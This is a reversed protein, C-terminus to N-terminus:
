WSVSDVAIGHEPVATDFQLGIGQATGATVDAPVELVVTNWGSQLPDGTGKRVSWSRDFLWPTATVVDAGSRASPPLWVHFSVLGGAKVGTLSGRDVVAATGAPVSVVLSPQASGSVAGAAVTSGGWASSWGSTGGAFNFRGTAKSSSHLAPHMMLPPGAPARLKLDAQVACGAGAACHAGADSLLSPFSCGGAWWAWATYGDGHQRLFNLLSADFGDPQCESGGFETAVVPATSALWGFSSQWGAANAGAVSEYPHTAYGVNAGDLQWASVGSLDYAWDDGGALVINNAGTSRIRDLMQQMGAAEFTRGGCTIMGGDRWVQWPIDHPENYLEFWVGSDNRFQQAVQQWFTLSDSDAMCQQGIATSKTDGGDSWHLDLIVVLGAAQAQDVADVLTQRYGPCAHGPAVQAGSDSLWSVENLPLRVTNANWTRRMTAFDSAPIGPAGDLAQGTCSWELSPRDVGRPVFVAGHPDVIKNGAATYAKVPVLAAAHDVDTAAFLGVFVVATALLTGLGFPTRRAHRGARFAIM